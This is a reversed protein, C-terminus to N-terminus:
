KPDKLWSIRRAALTFPIFFLGSVSFIVSMLSTVFFYEDADPPPFEFNLISVPLSFLPLILLYTIIKRALILRIIRQQTNKTTITKRFFFQIIYTPIMTLIFPFLFCYNDNDSIYIIYFSIFISLLSFGPTLSIGISLIYNEKITLNVQCDSFNKM